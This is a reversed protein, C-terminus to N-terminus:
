RFTDSASVQLRKIIGYQKLALFLLLNSILQALQENKGEFGERYM